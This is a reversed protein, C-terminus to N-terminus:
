SEYHQEDERVLTVPLAGAPMNLLNWICTYFACPVLEETMSFPNAQHGFDPTVIHDLGQAKFWDCFEHRLRHVRANHQSFEATSIERIHKLFIHM